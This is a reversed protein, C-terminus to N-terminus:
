TGAGPAGKKFDSPLQGTLEKFVRRFHDPNPFGVSMGVDMANLTGERLLECARDIKVRNVFQVITYGTAQKFVAGTWTPTLSLHAAIESLSIDRDLNELIFTQAKQVIPRHKSDPTKLVIKEKRLRDLLSLPQTERITRRLRLLRRLAAAAAMLFLVAGLVSLILRMLRGRERSLSEKESLVRFKKEFLVSREKRDGRELYGNMFWEGPEAERLLKFRFHTEGTASDVRFFRDRDNIYLYEKGDVRLSRGKIDERSAYLWPPTGFSVNFIYNRARDFWGGKNHPGAELFGARHLYLLAFGVHTVTTRITMVYWTDPVLDTVPGRKNEPTILVDKLAFKRLRESLALVSISQIPTWPSLFGNKKLIRIRLYLAGPEIPFDLLRNNAWIAPFSRKLLLPTISPYRSAELFVLSDGAATDINLRILNTDEIRASFLPYSLPTNLDAASDGILLNDFIFKASHLGSDSTGLKGLTMVGIGGPHPKLRLHGIEKGNEECSYTILDKSRSMPYFRVRIRSGPALLRGTVTDGANSLLAVQIGKGPFLTLIGSLLFRFLYPTKSTDYHNVEFFSVRHPQDASSTEWPHLSLDFGLAPHDPFPFKFRVYGEKILDATYARSGELTDIQVSDTEVTFM